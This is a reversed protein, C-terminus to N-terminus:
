PAADSSIRRDVVVVGLVDVAAAAEDSPASLLLSSLGGESM